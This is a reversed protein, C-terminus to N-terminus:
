GQHDALNLVIGKRNQIVLWWLSTRVGVACFVYICVRSQLLECRTKLTHVINNEILNHARQLCLSHKVTSHKETVHCISFLDNNFSHFTILSPLLFSVPSPPLSSHVSTLSSALLNFNVQQLFFIISCLFEIKKWNVKLHTKYYLINKLAM